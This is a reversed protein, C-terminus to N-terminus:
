NMMPIFVATSNLYTAAIGAFGGSEHSTKIQKRKKKEGLGFIAGGELEDAIDSENTLVQASSKIGRTGPEGPKNKM